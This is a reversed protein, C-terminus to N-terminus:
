AAEVPPLVIPVALTIGYQVVDDLVPHIGHILRGYFARPTDTYFCSGAVLQIVPRKFPAVGPMTSREDGLRGRKVMTRYYGQTPDERAPCFNSLAVFGNAADLDLALDDTPAWEELDIHGYGVSVRRGYGTAAMERLADGVLPTVDDTTRLYIVVRMPSPTWSETVAYLGGMDVTGTGHRNVTNKAASRTLAPPTTRERTVDQGACASRFAALPVHTRGKLRKAQALAEREERRTNPARHPQPALPLPLLGGVFGNSVVLPPEEAEYRALFGRLVGEGERRVIAWCLSGFITDAQWPTLVAGRQVLTARYIAAM